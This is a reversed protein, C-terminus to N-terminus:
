CITRQNLPSYLARKPPPYFRHLLFVLHVFDQPREANDSAIHPTCPGSM